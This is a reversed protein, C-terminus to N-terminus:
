PLFISDALFWWINQGKQFGYSFMEFHLWIVGIQIQFMM